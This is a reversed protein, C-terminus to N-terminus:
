VDPRKSRSAHARPNIVNQYCIYYHQDTVFQIGLSNPIFAHFWIRIAKDDEADFICM